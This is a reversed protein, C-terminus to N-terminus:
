MARCATTSIWGSGAWIRRWTRRQLRREYRCQHVRAGAMAMLRRGRPQAAPAPGTSRSALSHFAPCPSAIDSIPALSVARLLVVHHSVHWQWMISIACGVSRRVVLADSSARSGPTHLHGRRYRPVHQCPAAHRPMRGHFMGGSTYASAGLCSMHGVVLPEVVHCLGVFSAVCMFGGRRIALRPEVLRRRVVGSALCIGSSCARRPRVAGSRACVPVCRLGVISICFVVRRLPHPRCPWHAAVELGFRWLLLCVFSPGLALDGFSGM